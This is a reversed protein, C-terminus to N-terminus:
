EGNLGLSMTWVLPADTTVTVVNESYTNSSSVLGGFEMVTNDLNWKLGSTTVVCKSLPLLGCPIGKKCINDPIYIRHSGPRLLWTLSDGSIIYNRVPYPNFITETQYLTNINSLVQDLRGSNEAVAVVATITNRKVSAIIELAKTFDTKDQDETKIIKIGNKECKRLRESTVSDLDGSVVNPHINSLCGEPLTDVFEYWRDTGGDVTVCFSAKEWINCMHEYPILIPRNLIVVAYSDISLLQKGSVDLPKWVTEIAAMSKCNMFRADPM